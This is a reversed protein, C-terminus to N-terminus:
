ASNLRKGECLAFLIIPLYVCSLTAKNFKKTKMVSLYGHWDYKSRVLQVWTVWTVAYGLSVLQDPQAVYVNILWNKSIKGREM